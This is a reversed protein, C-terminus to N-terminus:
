NCKFCSTKCGCFNNKITVKVLVTTRRELAWTTSWVLYMCSEQKIHFCSWDPRSFYLVIIYFNLNVNILFIFLLFSYYLEEGSKNRRPEHPVRSHSWYQYPWKYSHGLVCFGCNCVPSRILYWADFGPCSWVRVQSTAAEKENSITEGTMGGQLGCFDKPTFKWLLSLESLALPVKLPNRFVVEM